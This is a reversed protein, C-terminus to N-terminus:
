KETAIRALDGVWLPRQRAGAAKAVEGAPLASAGGIASRLSSANARAHQEAAQAKRLEERLQEVEARQADLSKRIEVLAPDPAAPAPAPQAVVVEASKTVPAEPAPAAVPDPVDVTAALLTQELAADVLVSARKLLGAFDAPADTHGGESPAPPTPPDTPAAAGCDPCCGTDMKVVKGCAACTSAKVVLFKKQRNAGSCVLSVFNTDMDELRTVPKAPAEAAKAIQVRANM